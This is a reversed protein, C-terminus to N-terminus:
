SLSFHVVTWVMKTLTRIMRSSREGLSSSSPKTHRSNLLLNRGVQQSTCARSPMNQTSRRLRLPSITRLLTKLNSSRGLRMLMLRLTSDRRAQRTWNQLTLLTKRSCPPLRHYYQSTFSKGCNVLLVVHRGVVRVSPLCHVSVILTATCIMKSRTYAGTRVREQVNLKSELKRQNQWRM